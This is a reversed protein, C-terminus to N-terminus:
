FICTVCIYVFLEGHMLGPKGATDSPVLILSRGFHVGVMAQSAAETTDLIVLLLEWPM